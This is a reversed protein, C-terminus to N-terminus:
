QGIAAPNYIKGDQWGTAPIFNTFDGPAVTKNIARVSGDGYAFNIVVHPSCFTYWCANQPLTGWYSPLFGSGIWAYAFTAGQTPLCNSPKTAMAINSTEGFMLTNAAGDRSTLQAMSLMTQSGFIGQYPDWGPDQIVGM